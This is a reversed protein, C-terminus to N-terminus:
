PARLEAEAEARFMKLEQVDRAPLDKQAETWKVARDFCDKAKAAEGLKAHCMALFFLDFADSMGAGAALSKQLTDRAQPYLGNRFQVVGLTNLFIANEPEYDLAKRILELAKAPDRQGVPGTVLKWAENNLPGAGQGGLKPAQDRDAKALAAKGLAQYCEAREDCFVAIGPYATRLVTYDAVAEEYHKREKNSRARLLRMQNDFPVKALFRSADAAADDWRKLRWAVQARTSLAETLDPAFALAASLHAYAESFQGAVSLSQGLRCHADPDFPKFYLRAVAHQGEYQNMKEYSTAWEADILEVQLAPVLASNDDRARVSLTPQAEAWDLGLEALQERIRRLDFVYLSGTEGGRALLLSGDTSFTVGGIRGIEPSPLLAIERDTELSVLRIAGEDTGSARVRHDPSFAGGLKVSESKWQGQWTSPGPPASPAAKLPTAALSAVELRRDQKGSIYLWRSDTSFGHFGTVEDLPLNAVLKGTNADWVKVGVGSGDQWFSATVVWLGNPSVSAGRVDYQPGLRVIRRSAGRHVVLAGGNRLPVAAVRGDPSFNGKVWDPMNAVWEPPGIGLRHATGASAQVPWRLFGVSSSTWLTGTRDFDVNQFNGAVFQVEEGTHLDFFGLGTRTTVALLRGDPHLALDDFRQPGQPTPRHLIRLEQGRAVRLAQYKDGVGRLGLWRDDSGFHLEPSSPLSLLQRGTAADRLRLVGGWDRSAICDGTHNFAIQTGGNQYLQWPQTLVKGTDADHLQIGEGGIALRHGRPHWALWTAGVATHLRLLRQGTEVDWIFVESHNAVALRPLRPHYAVITIASPVPGLRRLRQGTETDYISVTGDVHGFAVQKSDPRFATAFQYPGEPDDLVRVPAPGDIRWVRAPTWERKGDIYPQLGVAVFRGDPSFWSVGRLM